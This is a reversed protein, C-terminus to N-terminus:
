PAMSFSLATLACSWRAMAARTEARVPAVERPREEVAEAERPVVDARLALFKLGVM